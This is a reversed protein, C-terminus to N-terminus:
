ASEPPMLMANGRNENHVPSLKFLMEQLVSANQMVMAPTM